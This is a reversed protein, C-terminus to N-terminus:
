NSAQVNSVGVKSGSIGYIKSPSIKNSISSNNTQLVAPSIPSGNNSPSLSRRNIDNSSQVNVIGANSTPRLGNEVIRFSTM